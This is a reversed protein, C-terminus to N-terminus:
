SRRFKRSSGKRRQWRETRRQKDLLAKEEATLRVQKQSKKAM